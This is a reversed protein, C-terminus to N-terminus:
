ENPSGLLMPGAAYPLGPVDPVRARLLRQREQLRIFERLRKPNQLLEAMRRNAAQATKRGGEAQIFRGVGLGTPLLMEMMAGQALNSATDSGSGGTSAGKSRQLTGQMDLDTRVGQLVDESPMSLASKGRRPGRKMTQAAIAQKLAAATIVPTDDMGAVPKRPMGTGEDIFRGRINVDAKAGEARTMEDAYQGKWQGWKGKTSKELVDDMAKSLGIVFPESTAARVGAEGAGPVGTLGKGVTSRLRHLLEPTVTGASEMSSELYDVASKVAPNGHYAATQKAQQLNDYFDDMARTFARPGAATYPAKSGIDNAKTLFGAIDDPTQLGEDLAEWRAKAIAEDYPQWAAGDATRSARELTAMGPDQTTVAASPSVKTKSAPGYLHPHPTYVDAPVGGPLERTLTDTVKRGAARHAAKEGMAGPLASVVRDAVQGLGRGAKLAGKLLHPAAGGGAAALGMNQLRSEDETVPMLAGSLAGGGMGALTPSAAMAGAVGGAAKAAMGAGLGLPVSPLVEGAIQLLTGGTTSDALRKDIRRKERLEEDTGGQGVLQKAGQWASDLGAGLNTMARAAYGMGETPDYREPAPQTKQSATKHHQNAWAWATNSDPADVEYTKGAVDVDYTPM